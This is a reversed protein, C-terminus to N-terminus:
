FLSGQRRLGAKTFEFLVIPLLGLTIAITWDIWTLPIIDFNVGVAQSLFLQISPIYMLAITILPVLLIFFWVAWNNDELLVKYLPKNARRLSLVLTSEAIAMVTLLMTRAKAQTWDIPNYSDPSFHPVFGIKNEEFVPLTGNLTAFYVTSFVLAFSILIVVFSIKQSKSINERDRPKQKMVDKSLRDIILAFPAISHTLFVIYLRQWTNLLYFNPIFSAAFFVLAEAVNVAIYFFVVARIKEYVGRGERVGTVISNFSDDTIIM